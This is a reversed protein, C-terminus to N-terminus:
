TENNVYSVEHGFVEKDFHEKNSNKRKRKEKLLM